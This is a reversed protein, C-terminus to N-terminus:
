SSIRPKKMSRCTTRWASAVRARVMTPPGRVLRRVIGIAIVAADEAVAADAARAAKANMMAHGALLNVASSRDAPLCAIM